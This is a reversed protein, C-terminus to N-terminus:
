QGNYEYISSITVVLQEEPSMPRRWNTTQKQIRDEAKALLADFTEISM